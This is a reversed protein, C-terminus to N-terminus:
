LHQHFDVGRGTQLTSELGEIWRWQAYNLSVYARLERASGSLLTSRAMRTLGYRAGRKRVYRSSALVRLLLELGDPDLRLSQSLEESSLWGRRLEEFVGLKVAAMMARVQLLPILVDIVPLPALGLWLALQELPGDAEIRYRM